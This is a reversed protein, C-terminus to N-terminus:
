IGATGGALQHVNFRLQIRCYAGFANDISDYIGLLRVDLSSTTNHSAYNVQAGSNDRTEGGGGTTFLLNANQGIDAFQFGTSSGDDQAEFLADPSIIVHQILDAGPSAASAELVVGLYPTSGPTIAAPGDIYGTALLTVPDWKYFAHSNNSAKKFPFAQVAGGSLTRMIPMLGHPNNVNAM